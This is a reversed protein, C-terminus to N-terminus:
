SNWGPINFGITQYKVGYNPDKQYILTINDQAEKPFILGSCNPPDSWRSPFMAAGAEFAVIIVVESKPFYSYTDPMQAYFDELKYLITVQARYNNYNGGSCYQTFDFVYYKGGTYVWSITHNGGDAWRLTVVKEYDGQM